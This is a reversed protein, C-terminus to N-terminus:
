LINVGGIARRKQREMEALKLLRGLRVYRLELALQAVWWIVMPETHAMLDIMKFAAMQRYEDLQENISPASSQSRCFRKPTFGSSCTDDDRSRKEVFIPHETTVKRRKSTFDDSDDTFDWSREVRKMKKVHGLLFINVRAEQNQTHPSGNLKSAHLTWQM